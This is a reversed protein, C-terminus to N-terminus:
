RPIPLSEDELHSYVSLEQHFKARVYAESKEGVQFLKMVM